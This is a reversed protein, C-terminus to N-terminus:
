IKRFYTKKESLQGGLSRKFRALGENLIGKDTAIGLDLIKYSEKQAYKYISSLLSITPSIKLYDEHDALYFTYIIDSNIKITVGIAILVDIDYVSFIQFNDPFKHFHETLQELTMTMPRNKRLRSNAIFAHITLFDPNLEKNFILGNRISKKLLQKARPSVITDLFSKEAIDIEYNHETYKIQFHLKQLCNELIYKQQVSLYKEPYSNIHIESINKSILFSVVQELFQHLSIESLSESFEIGGFTARLPSYAIKNNIIVSFRAEITQSNINQWYFTFLTDGGQHELHQIENFFYEQFNFSNDPVPHANESIILQYKM